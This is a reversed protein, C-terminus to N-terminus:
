KHLNLCMSVLPCAGTSGSSLLRPNLLRHSIVTSFWCPRIWKNALQEEKSQDKVMHTCMDPWQDQANVTLLEGAQMKAGSGVDEEASMRQDYDRELTENASNYRLPELQLPAKPVRIGMQRVWRARKKRNNKGRQQRGGSPQHHGSFCTAMETGSGVCFGMLCDRHKVGEDKLYM